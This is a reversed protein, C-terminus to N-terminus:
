DAPATLDMAAQEARQTAAIASMAVELAEWVRAEARANDETGIPFAGADGVRQVPVGLADLRKQLHRRRCNLDRLENGRRKHDSPLLERGRRIIFDAAALLGRLKKLRGVAPTEGFETQAADAQTM